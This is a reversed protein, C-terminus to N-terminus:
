HIGSRWIDAPASVPRTPGPAAATSRWRPTARTQQPEHTEAGRRSRWALLGGLAAAAAMALPVAKNQSAFTYSSHELVKDANYGRIEGERVPPEYLADARPSPGEKKQGEFLQKEMAKDAVRPMFKEAVAFGVGTGGVLVKRQPHEAAHLVARAVVEPAYLPPPLDPNRDMYSRAHQTYPTDISAPEILVVAVPAGDHELEMRVADSYAKIAQKSAAYAGQLPISRESTVSGMNILTGGRRRLHDVAVRMGYVEGWFNVDFLRRQDEVPVDLAKGYISVGANNFWTDFGGFAEIARDAIRRVDSEDAVDAAVAIAQGGERRIEEAIRELEAGNRSALVVRAGKEAALRATALGIGSSAGTIVITQESIKKM